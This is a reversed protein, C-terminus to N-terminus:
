KKNNWIYLWIMNFEDLILLITTYLIWMNFIHPAIYSVYFTYLIILSISLHFIYKTELYLKQNPYFVLQNSLFQLSVIYYFKPNSKILKIKMQKEFSFVWKYPCKWGLIRNYLKDWEMLCNINFWITFLKIKLVCM